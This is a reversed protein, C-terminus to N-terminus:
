FTEGFGIEFGKTSKESNIERQRLRWIMLGTDRNGVKLFYMPAEYKGHWMISRIQGTVKKGGKCVTVFDGFGVKPARIREFLEALVRYKEDGHRLVIYQGDNGVYQFVYGAPMLRSFAALDDPHVLYTGYEEWWRYRGWTGIKM